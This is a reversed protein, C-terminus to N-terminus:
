CPKGCRIATIYQLLERLQKHKASTGSGIIMQFLTEKGTSNHLGPEYRSAQPASRVGAKFRRNL